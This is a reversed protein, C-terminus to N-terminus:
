ALKIKFISALIEETVFNWAKWDQPNILVNLVRFFPLTEEIADLVTRPKDAAVPMNRANITEPVTNIFGVSPTFDTNYLTDANLNPSLLLVNDRLTQNSAKDQGLEKLHKTAAACRDHCADPSVWHDNNTQVIFWTGDSSNLFTEHAPGRNNRAIIVGEDQKTGALIFYGLSDVPTDRLKEHACNWDKCTDLTERILWSQENYGSFLMVLNELFYIPDKTFERTNQSVSFAEAKMGTYIGVVGAFMVSDFAYKGSHTYTVRYIM